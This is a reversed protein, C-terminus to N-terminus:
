GRNQSSRSAKFPPAKHALVSFVQAQGDETLGVCRGNAHRQFSQRGSFGDVHLGQLGEQFAACRPLVGPGGRALLGVRRFKEGPQHFIDGAACGKGGDYAVGVGAGPVVGIKRHDGAGAVGVVGSLHFVASM